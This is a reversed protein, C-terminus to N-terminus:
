VVAYLLHWSPFHWNSHVKKEEKFSQRSVILLAEFDPSWVCVCVCVNNLPTSYDICYDIRLINLVSLGVESKSIGCTDSATMPKVSPWWKLIYLLCVCSVSANHKTTDSWKKIDTYLYLRVTDASIYWIPADVSLTTGGQGRNESMSNHFSLSANSQEFLYGTLESCSKCNCSITFLLVM